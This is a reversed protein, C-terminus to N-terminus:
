HPTIFGSKAAALEERLLDGVFDELERSTMSRVDYWNDNHSIVVHQSLSSTLTGILLEADAASIKKSKHFRV